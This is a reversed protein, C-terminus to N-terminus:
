RRIVVMRIVQSVVHIRFGIVGHTQVQVVLHKLVLVEVIRRVVKVIWRVDVQVMQCMVILSVFVLLGIVGGVVQGPMMVELVMVVGVIIVGAVLRIM